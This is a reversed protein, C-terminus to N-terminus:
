VESKWKYFYQKQLKYIVNDNYHKIRDKLKKKDLQGSDKNTTFTTNSIMSTGRIDFDSKTNSKMTGLKTLASLIPVETPKRSPDRTKDKSEVHESVEEVDDPSDLRTKLNEREAPTMCAYVIRKEALKGLVKPIYEPEPYLHLKSKDEEKYYLYLRPLTTQDESHVRMKDKRPQPALHPASPKTLYKKLKSSADTRRTHLDKIENQNTILKAEAKINTEYAEDESFQIDEFSIVKDKKARKAM